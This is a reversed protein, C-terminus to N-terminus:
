RNLGPSIVPNRAAGGVEVSRATRASRVGGPTANNVTIGEAERIADPANVERPTSRLVERVHPADETVLPVLEGKENRTMVLEGAETTKTEVAVIDQHAEIIKENPTRPYINMTLVWSMTLRPFSIHAKLESDNELARAVENLIIQKAEAGNIPNFLNM